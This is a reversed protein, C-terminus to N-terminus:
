EGKMFLGKMYDNLIQFVGSDALAKRDARNMMETGIGGINNFLQSLNAALTGSHMMDDQRNWGLAQMLAQLQMKARAEKISANAKQAELDMMSNTKDTDRNFAAVKERQAQNYEEGARALQGFKDLAAMDSANMAALASARNGGSLDRAARRNAAIQSDLRNLYYNRDFPRYALYQGIPNYSIDSITNALRSAENTLKDSWEYKPKTWLSSLAGLAPGLASALRMAMGAANYGNVNSKSKTKPTNDWKSFATDVDYNLHVTGDSNLPALEITKAANENQQVPFNKIQAPDDYVILRNDLLANDNSTAYGSPYSWQLNSYDPIIGDIWSGEDFLHGGLAHKFKTANHAFQAKKRMAPSYNEPHALVKSAFEQVGMGHKTAAATFTGRKNKAIHIPGGDAFLSALNEEQEYQQKAALEQRITEQSQALKAMFDNLTRKAIPDNPREDYREKMTKAIDAFTTINGGFKYEKKLDEPAKLRNSFAYDNWVVEGEEVLNVGGDPAIGFPVGEYPNQEHSGGNNIETLGTRWDAGYSHLPGGLDYANAWMSRYERNKISNLAREFSKQNRQNIFDITSNLKDIANNARIAEEDARNENGIGTAVGSFLGAVGGILTGWGPMISTGFSAGKGLGEAITRGIGKQDFDKYTFIDDSREIPKLSLGASLLDSYSTIGKFADQSDKLNKSYDDIYDVIEDASSNNLLDTTVGGGLVTGAIQGGNLSNDGTTIHNFWRAM